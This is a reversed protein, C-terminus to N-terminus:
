IDWGPDVRGSPMTPEVVTSIDTRRFDKKGHFVIQLSSTPVSAQARDAGHTGEGGAAGFGGWSKWPAFDSIWKEMEM